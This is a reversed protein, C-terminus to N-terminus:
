EDDCPDHDMHGLLDRNRPSARFNHVSLFCAMVALCVMSIRSDSTQRM